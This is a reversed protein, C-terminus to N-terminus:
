RVSAVIPGADRVTTRREHSRSLFFFHVVRDKLTLQIAVIHSKIGHNVWVVKAVLKHANGIAGVIALAHLHVVTSRLIPIGQAPSLFLTIAVSRKANCVLAFPIIIMAVEVEV